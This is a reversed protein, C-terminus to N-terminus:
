PVIEAARGAPPRYNSRVHMDFPVEYGVEYVFPKHGRQHQMLWLAIQGPTDNDRNSVGFTDIITIRLTGSLRKNLPDFEGNVIEVQLGDTSGHAGFAPSLPNVGWSARDAPYLPVKLHALDVRGTRSYEEEALRQIRAKMTDAIRVGENDHKIVESWASGPRFILPAGTMGLFHELIKNSVPNYHSALNHESKIRKYLDYSSEKSQLHVEHKVWINNEWDPPMTPTGNGQRPFDGFSRDNLQPGYLFGNASPSPKALPIQHLSPAQNHKPQQALLLGNGSPQDGGHFQVPMEAFDPEVTNGLQFPTSSFTSSVPIM